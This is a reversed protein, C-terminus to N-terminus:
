FLRRDEDKDDDEDEDLPYHDKLHLNYYEYDSLVSLGLLSASGLPKRQELEKAKKQFEKVLTYPKVYKMEDSNLSSLHAAFSISLNFVDM